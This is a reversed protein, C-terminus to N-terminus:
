HADPPLSYYVNEMESNDKAPETTDQKCAEKMYQNGANNTNCDGIFQPPAVYSYENDESSRGARTLQQKNNKVTSPKHTYEDLTSYEAEEDAANDTNDRPSPEDYLELYEPVDSPSPDNTQLATYPKEHADLTTFPDLDQYETAGQRSPTASQRSPTAQYRPNIPESYTTHQIEPSRSSASNGARRRKRRVVIVMLGLFSFVVLCAVVIGAITGSISASNNGYDERPDQTTLSVMSQCYPTPNDWQTTQLTDGLVCRLLDEGFLEFGEYCYFSINSAYRFPGVGPSRGGNIPSLLDECLGLTLNYVSLTARGGCVEDNNGSCEVNCDRDRKQSRQNINIEDTGCYCQNGRTLGAFKMQQQQCHDLCLGVTMNMATLANDDNFVPTNSPNNYCGIFGPVTCILGAVGIMGVCRSPQEVPGNNCQGLNPENGRCGIEGLSGNNVAEGFYSGRRARALGPFGLQRCAVMADNAGWFDNDCVDLWTGNPQQVEVNGSNPASAPGGLLRINIFDKREQALVFAVMCYVVGVIYAPVM